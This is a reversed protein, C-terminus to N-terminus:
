FLEEGEEDPEWEHILSVLAERHVGALFDRRESEKRGTQLRLTEQLPNHSKILFENRSSLRKLLRPKPVRAAKDRNCRRCALVLNWVGDLPVELDRAMLVHPFFHDVEPPADDLLSFGSFCFFCHGNQYGSLAKRAGTIPKRRRSRDVVFLSEIDHDYNVAILSQSVGLEWATEVLKWRAENEIPLNSFQSRELLESFSDTIRIGGNDSREDLFFRKPVDDPGVRHFADIVNVFGDRVAIEILDTDDVEGRTAGRCAVLFKGGGPAPSTSQKDADSLHKRLHRTFPDALEELRVLDGSAPKLELLSAALAFKYSTVNRGYLVIGRWYDEVHLNPQDFPLIPM